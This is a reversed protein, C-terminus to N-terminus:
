LSKRLTYINTCHWVTNANQGFYQNHYFIHDVNLKNCQFASQYDATIKEIHLTLLSYWTLLRFDQLKICHKPLTKPTLIILPPNHSGHTGSKFKHNKITPCTFPYITYNDGNYQLCRTFHLNGV